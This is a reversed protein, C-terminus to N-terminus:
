GTTLGLNVAAQKMDFDLRTGSFKDEPNQGPYFTTKTPMEGSQKYSRNTYTLFDDQKASWMFAQTQEWNQTMFTDGNPMIVFVKEDKESFQTNDQETGHKVLDGGTYGNEGKVSDNLKTRIEGQWKTLRGLEPDVKQRDEQGLLKSRGNNITTRIIERSKSKLQDKLETVSDGSATRLQEKLESREKMLLALVPDRDLTKGALKGDGMKPLMAFMDYDATLPVPADEKKTKGGMVELEKWEKVTEGVVPQKGELNKYSVKFGGQDPELKFVYNENKGGNLFYRQGNEPSKSLPEGMDNCPIILKNETLYNLRNNSLTLQSSGVRDGDHELSHQNDEIGKTIAKSDDHKKSLNQDRAIYGSMPGWDSSKGHVNLGKAATGEELLGTSMQNVPRFMLITNTDKAVQKFKEVHSGVLGSDKIAQAGTIMGSSKLKDLHGCFASSVPVLTARQPGTNEVTVQQPRPGIDEIILRQQPALSIDQIVPHETVQGGMTHFDSFELTDKPKPPVGLADDEFGDNSELDIESLGELISDLTNSMGRNLHQDVGSRREPPEQLEVQRSTLAKHLAIFPQAIIDGMQKLAQGASVVMGKLTTAINHGINQLTQNAVALRGQLAQLNM